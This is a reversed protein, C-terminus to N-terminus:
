KFMEGTLRSQARLKYVAQTITAKDSRERQERLVVCGHTHRLAADGSPVALKTCYLFRLIKTLDLLCKSLKKCTLVLLCQLYFM